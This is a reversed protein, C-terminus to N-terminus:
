KKTSKDKSWVGFPGSLVNRKRFEKLEMYETRSRDPGPWQLLACLDRIRKSKLLDVGLAGQMKDLFVGLSRQAVDPDARTETAWNRDEFLLSYRGAANQSYVKSTIKVAGMGLPKGMGLKLRMKEGAALVNLIFVLAGLEESSLNEFKLRFNFKVGARLPNIQTSVKEKIEGSARLEDATVAGKHWYFKHGRVVTESPTPSAYDRLRTEYKAKGDRNEGIKYEDPETQVLYHQFTTPKPGSLVKPTITKEPTLWIGNQGSALRADSFSVRGAYSHLREGMQAYKKKDQASVKRTYGFIAEAWDVVELSETERAYLPIHELPSKPYPVRFMRAHGFFVAKGADDTIYFVPQGDNLAGQPGLLGEQEPSIQDKYADVQDDSLTLLKANPDAEYVVAETRKSFMQGSKALTGPRLGQGAASDAELVRAYRIKLFGGRVDQYDFPSTRIFIESANKTGPIRKLDKNPIKKIPIHAYTTGDIEKAPHIAWDRAGVKVMYGGKILPTYWKKRDHDGDFRMMMDRYHADHNTAGGVSRYVLRKDSVFSLKSFTVIEVLTRFVGRLSSGPIVPEDKDNLFFFDPLDKSQKGARAQEPTIGARVFVPSETTLECDLYGTLRDPHYKGQDPLEEVRQTVILEPLPVFNYPAVAQRNEKIKDPQVPLTM